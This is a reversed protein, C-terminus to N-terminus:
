FIGVRAEVSRVLWELNQKSHVFMELEACVNVSSCYDRNCYDVTEFRYRNAYCIIRYALNYMELDKALLGINFM